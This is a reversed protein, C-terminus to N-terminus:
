KKATQGAKAKLKEDREKDQKKKLKDLATEPQPKCAIMVYVSAHKTGGCMVRKDGTCPKDCRDKSNGSANKKVYQLCTCVQGESLAFFRADDKDKCFSHCKTPTMSTPAPDMVVAKPGEELGYCGLLKTKHTVNGQAHATTTPAVTTTPAATSSATENAGVSELFATDLPFDCAENDDVDITKVFVRRLGATSALAVTTSIVRM